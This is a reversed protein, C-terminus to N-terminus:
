LAQLCAICSMATIVFREVLGSRGVEAGLCQHEPFGEAAEGGVDLEVDHLLLGVPVLVPVTFDVDLCHVLAGRM